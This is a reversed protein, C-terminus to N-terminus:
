SVRLSIPELAYSRRSNRPIPRLPPPSTRRTRRCMRFAQSVIQDSPSAATIIVGDAGIGDSLRAVQEVPDGEGPTVGLDIGEPTYPHNKDYHGVLRGKRDFLLTRNYLRDTKRDEYYVGGAVYM